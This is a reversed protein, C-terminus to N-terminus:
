GHHAVVEIVWSYDGPVNERPYSYPEGVVRFVKGSLAADSPPSCSILAERLDADVSKPLYFTMPVTAGHPRGSEFDDSTDPTRGGPSYLCHTVMDPEQNYTVVDNGWEDSEREALWISCPVPTFPMPFSTM